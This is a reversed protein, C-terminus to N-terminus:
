FNQYLTTVIRSKRYRVSLLEDSRMPNFNFPPETIVVGSDQALRVGRGTPKDKNPTFEGTPLHETILLYKYKSLKPLIKKIEDNSLHQLVQRVTVCDAEPLPDGVIDLCYFELGPYDFKGRNREILDEVVDIAIYSKTDAVLQEGVNFDGCGLDCLSLRPEFSRLWERTHKVYPKVIKASHSGAGSYFDKDPGGWRKKSYIDTMVSKTSRNGKEPLNEAGIPTAKKFLFRFYKKLSIMLPTLYLGDGLVM